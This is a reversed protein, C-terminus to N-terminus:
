AAETFTVKDTGEDFTFAWDPSDPTRVITEASLALPTGENGLSDIPVVRWEYDALDDLRQTTYSYEWVGDRAPITILSSWGGGDKQQEVCYAVCDSSISRVWWLTRRPPYGDPANAIPDWDPDTTDLVELRLQEGEDLYFSLVNTQTSARFSGDVYWHYYIPASLDSTVTVETVDGIRRCQYDTITM